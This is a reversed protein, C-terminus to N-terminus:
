NRRTLSNSPQQALRAGAAVQNPGFVDVRFVSGEAVIRTPVQNIQFRSQLDPTLLYIPLDFADGLAEFRAWVKNVEDSAYGDLDTITVVARENRQPIAQLAFEVQEPDSADLAWLQMGFPVTDLLNYTSGAAAIVEGSKPNKIDHTVRVTPDVFRTQTEFAKPLHIFKQNQWFRGLAKQQMDEFDLQAVREKMVETLDREAYEDTPGIREVTLEDQNGLGFLELHAVASQVDSAGYVLANRDPLYVAPVESIGLERSYVPNVEVQVSHTDPSENKIQGVALNLDAFSRALNAEDLFGRFVIKTNTGGAAKVADIFAQRGLSTSFFVIAQDQPLAPKPVDDQALLANPDADIGPALEEGRDALDQVYEAAKKQADPVITQLQELYNDIQAQQAKLLEPDIEVQDALARSEEAFSTVDSAWTFQALVIGLALLSKSCRM